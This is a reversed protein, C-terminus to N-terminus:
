ESAPNEAPEIEREPSEQYAEVRWLWAAFGLLWLSLIGTALRQYLGQSGPYAILIMLFVFAWTGAGISVASLCRLRSYRQCTIGWVIAGVIMTLYGLRAYLTHLEQSASPSLPACGPDCPYFGAAIRATGTAAILLAGALALRDYRFVWALFGAFAVYLGGTLVFGAYRMLIETESGHEGLESIFQSMHSYDPRLTGAYFIMFIWLVPALIGCVNGFRILANLM